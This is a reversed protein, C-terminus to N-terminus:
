RMDSSYRSPIEGAHLEPFPGSIQWGEQALTALATDKDAWVRTADAANGTPLRWIGGGLELRALEVVNEEGM